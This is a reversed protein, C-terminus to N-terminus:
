PEDDEEDDLDEEFDYEEEEDEDLDDAEADDEGEEFDFDEEEDFDDEEDDDEAAENLWSEATLKELAAFYGPNPDADVIEGQLLDFIHGSLVYGIAHIAEHRDLGEAMLRGLTAQVPIQDGMAIQTEVILHFQAHIQPNPLHVGTRRHYKLIMDLREAEDLALWQEPDVPHLPDYKKM